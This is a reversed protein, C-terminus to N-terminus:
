ALDKQKLKSVIRKIFEIEDSDLELIIKILQTRFDDDVSELIKTLHGAEKTDTRFMEGDGTELWHRNVNFKDCIDCITRESISRRGSEYYAIISRSKLNLRDAFEEQTLNLHNRLEKLRKKM